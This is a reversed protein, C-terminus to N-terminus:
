LLRDIDAQKPNRLYGERFVQIIALYIKKMCELTTSLGIKLYGDVSDAAIGYALM